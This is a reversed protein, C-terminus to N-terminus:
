RGARRRVSNRSVGEAACCAGPVSARVGATHLVHWVMASAASIVPKGGDCEMAGTADPTPMGVGGIFVAQAETHDAM